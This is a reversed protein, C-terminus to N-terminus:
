CCGTKDHLGATVALQVSQQSNLPSASDQRCIALAPPGATKSSRTWTPKVWWAKTHLPNPTDPATISVTTHDPPVRECSAPSRPSSDSAGSRQFLNQSRFSSQIQFNLFLFGQRTQWLEQCNEWVANLNQQIHSSWSHPAFAPMGYFSLDTIFLHTKISTIKSFTAMNFWIQLLSNSGASLERLLRSCKTKSLHSFFRREAWRWLRILNRHGRDPEAVRCPFGNPVEWSAGPNQSQPPIKSVHLCLAVYISCSM